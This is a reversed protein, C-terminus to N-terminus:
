FKPQTLKNEDEPLVMTLSFLSNIGEKTTEMINVGSLSIYHRKSNIQAKLEENSEVSYAAKCSAQDGDYDMGFSGIFVNSISMTDIFMNSTNTGIQKQEIRPYFKYFTGNVVMPEIQKTSAVNLLMPSINYFSDIPYRTVMVCKDKSVEVAAMYFLDTWTMYREMIPMSIYDKKALFDEESVNRGKFILPVEKLKEDELPLMVPRLRNAYGHIFRDIEEKIVTDSFAIQYDKMKYQKIEREGKKNKIVVSRTPSNAFENEFFRRLYFLVFPFFNALVAALPVAAHDCDCIMDSIKEVTLEPAGMVLRASNDTSKSQSARRMIGMKGPLQPESAFWDYIQVIIDQIRGRVTDSLSIGYEASEKLSRSAILLSNYLKNIDGVGIRNADGGDTNVDRYYAPIVLMDSIFMKDKFKTLFKKNFERNESETSKIKIKDFNDRLFKIGCSGDPDEVLEGNIIKFKATGHVCSVVKSDLKSWIKYFIPAMFVEKGLSIYGFNQSRQEKSIGYIENSLLGQSTPSGDKNFFVPDTVEQCHDPGNAKIFKDVDLPKVNLHRGQEEAELIAGELFDDEM